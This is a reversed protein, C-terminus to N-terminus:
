AFMKISGAKFKESEVIERYLYSSDNYIELLLETCFLYCSLRWWINEGNNHRNYLDEPLNISDVSQLPVDVRVVLQLKILQKIM